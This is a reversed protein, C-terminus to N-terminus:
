RATFSSELWQEGWKDAYRKAAERYSMFELLALPKDLDAKEDLGFLSRIFEDSM